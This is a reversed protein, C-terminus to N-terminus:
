KEMGTIFNITLGKIVENEIEKIIKTMGTNEFLEYGDAEELSGLLSCFVKCVTKEVKRHLKNFFFICRHLLFETLSLFTILLDTIFNEPVPGDITSQYIQTVACPRKVVFSWLQWSIFWYKKASYEHYSLSRSSQISHCISLAELKGTIKETIRGDLILFLISAAQSTLISFSDHIDPSAVWTFCFYLRWSKICGENNGWSELPESIWVILLATNWGGGIFYNWLEWNMTLLM